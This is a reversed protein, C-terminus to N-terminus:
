PDYQAIIGYLEELIALLESDNKNVETGEKHIFMKQLGCRM